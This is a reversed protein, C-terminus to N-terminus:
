IKAAESRSRELGAWHWDHRATYCLRTRPSQRADSTWSLSRCTSYFSKISESRDHSNSLKCRLNKEWSMRGVYLVNIASSPKPPGHNARMATSYDIEGLDWAARLADDRRNPTFMRTDVGRSWTRLNRDGLNQLATSNSNSPSFTLMCRSPESLHVRFDAVVYM